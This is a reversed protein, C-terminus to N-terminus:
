RRQTGPCWLDDSMGRIPSLGTRLTTPSGHPAEVAHLPGVRVRSAARRWQHLLRQTAVGTTLDRRYLGSADPGSSSAPLALSFYVATGDHAATASCVSKGGTYARMLQNQLSPPLVPGAATSTATADRAPASVLAALSAILMSAFRARRSMRTVRM